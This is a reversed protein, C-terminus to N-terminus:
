DSLGDKPLATELDNLLISLTNDTRARVPPTSVPLRSPVRKPVIEGMMDQWIQAPIMGGTIRKMSSNDDNGVWVGTVLDPVYGVFWADRYDNTTGTKGGVDHGTIRARKGTGTQVGHIMIRNMHGLSRSNIVRQRETHPRDYLPENKDTTISLIGHVSATDGWNAFPLYARTLALPTVGQAGLPLSRLPKLDGLGLLSATEVVRARGTEESLAVAVTNISQAFADELAMEGRFDQTFNRPEWDGIKLPADLRMDWPTLGANFASLYVIPKFASGPQRNAQVARNFQSDAYSAGGVMAQVGGTGDLTVIAAQTVKREPDLNKTIAAEARRQADIDLTTRVIIDTQPTGIVDEIKDWVWDTFYEAGGRAEPPYIHIPALLAEREAQPTIYGYRSMASLVLATRKEARDPHAIPNYRSPGKLLGAIIASEGLDLDQASKKFYQQAGAELGWAHGGFYIRNLYKEFIEDKSFAHELWIALISEQLKRKYTKDSTLFVNKALQQTLTSGGQVTRGAKMNVQLARMLGLPDVGVHTYFRRDETALVADRVYPSLTSMSVPTLEKAGRTLIDRKNRDVIRVSVPRSQTWFSEVPPLDRAANALLCLAAIGSLYAPFFLFRVFRSAWRRIIMATFRARKAWLSRAAPANESQLNQHGSM